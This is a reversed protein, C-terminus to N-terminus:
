PASVSICCNEGPIMSCWYISPILKVLFCAM